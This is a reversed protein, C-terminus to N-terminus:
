SELSCVPRISLEALWGMSLTSKESFLEKGLAVSPHIVPAPASTILRPPSSLRERVPEPPLPALKLALMAAESWSLM